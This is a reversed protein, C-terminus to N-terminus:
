SSRKTTKTDKKEYYNKLNLKTLIYKELELSNVYPYEGEPCESTDEHEIPPVGENFINIEISPSGIHHMHNDAIWCLIDEGFKQLEKNAQM